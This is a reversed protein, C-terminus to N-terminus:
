GNLFKVLGSCKVVVQHWCYAQLLVVQRTLGELLLNALNQLSGRLLNWLALLEFLLLLHVVLLLYIEHVLHLSILWLVHGDDLIDEFRKNRGLKINIEWVILSAPEEDVAEFPRLLKLAEGELCCLVVQSDDEIALNFWRIRDLELYKLLVLLFLLVLLVQLSELAKVENRTCWKKGLLLCIHNVKLQALLVWDLKILQGLQRLIFSVLEELLNPEEVRPDEIVEVASVM